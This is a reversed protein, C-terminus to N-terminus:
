ARKFLIRQREENWVGVPTDVQIDEPDEPNPAYVQNDQDKYYTKGKYEIAELELAGEDEDAAEEEAESEAGEEEAEAEAEAEPEPEEEGESEEVEEQAEEEAEAEVEVEMEEDEPEVEEQEEEEVVEEEEEMVEIPAVVNAVPKAVEITPVPAVPVVENLNIEIGKMPEIWIEEKIKPEQVPSQAISPPPALVEGQSGVHNVHVIPGVSEADAGEEKMELAALRSSLTALESELERIRDTQVSGIPEYDRNEELPKQRTLRIVDEIMSLREHISNELARFLEHVMLDSSM